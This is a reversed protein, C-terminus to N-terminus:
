IKFEALKNMEAFSEIVHLKVETSLTIIIEASIM